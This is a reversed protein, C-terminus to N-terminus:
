VMLDHLHERASRMEPVNRWRGSQAHIEAMYRDLRASTVMPAIGTLTDILAAAEDPRASDLAVQIRRALYNAQLLPSLPGTLNVALDLTDHAHPYVRQEKLAVGVGGLLDAKEFVTLGDVTRAADLKARARHEQGPVFGLARGLRMIVQARQASTADTTKILALAREAYEAGVRGNGQYSAFMSLERYADIEASTDEAQRALRVALAGAREADKLRQADYLVLSAKRALESCASLLRRNKMESVTKIRRLHRIAAVSSSVGGQAYMHDTLRQALDRVYTHDRYPNGLAEPVLTVPTVAAMNALFTRREVADERKPRIVVEWGVRETWEIVRRAPVDQKGAIIRSLSPQSTGLRRALDVQTWGNEEMILTLAKPVSRAEM